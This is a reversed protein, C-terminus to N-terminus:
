EAASMKTMGDSWSDNPWVTISDSAQPVGTTPKEEPPIGSMTRGPSVPQSAGVPSVLASRSAIASANDSSPL